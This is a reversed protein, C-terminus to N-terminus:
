RRRRHIQSRAVVEVLQKGVRAVAVARHQERISGREIRHRTVARQEVRLTAREGVVDELISQLRKHAHRMQNHAPSSRLAVARMSQRRAHESFSRSSHAYKDELRVWEAPSAASLPLAYTESQREGVGCVVLQPLCVLPRLRYQLIDNALAGCQPNLLSDASRSVADLTAADAFLVTGYRDRADALLRDFDNSPRPNVGSNSSSASFPAAGLPDGAAAVATRCAYSPDARESSPSFLPPSSDSM